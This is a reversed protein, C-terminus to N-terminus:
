QTAGDELAAQAAKRDVRERDLQAALEDLLRGESRARTVRRAVEARDAARNQQRALHILRRAIIYDGRM